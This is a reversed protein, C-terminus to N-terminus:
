TLLWLWFHVRNGCKSQLIWWNDCQNDKEPGPDLGPDSEANQQQTEKLTNPETDKWRRSQEGQLELSLSCRDAEPGDCVCSTREWDQASLGASLLGQPTLANEWAPAFLLTTEMGGGERVEVCWCGFVWWSETCQIDMRRESIEYVVSNGVREPWIFWFKWLSSLTKSNKM